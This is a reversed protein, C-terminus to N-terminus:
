EMIPASYSELALGKSSSACHGDIAPSEDLGRGGPRCRKAKGGDHAALSSGIRMPSSVMLVPARAEPPMSAM